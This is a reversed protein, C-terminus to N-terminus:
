NAFLTPAAAVIEGCTINGNKDLDLAVSTRKALFTSGPEPTIVLTAAAALCPSTTGLVKQDLVPDATGSILDSSKVEGHLTAGTRVTAFIQEQKECVLTKALLTVGPHGDHDDDASAVGLDLAFPPPAFTTGSATLYDGENDHPKARFLSELALPVTLEAVSGVKPPTLRCLQMRMRLSSGHQVLRMRYLQRVEVAVIAKMKALVQVAFIGTLPGAGAEDWPELADHEIVNMQATPAESPAATPVTAEPRLFSYDEARPGCAALALAFAPALALAPALAPTHHTGAGEVACRPLTPSPSAAPRMRIM